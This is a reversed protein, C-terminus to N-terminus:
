LVKRIITEDVRQDIVAKGVATLLTFRTEGQVNKKDSHLRIIIKDSLSSKDKTSITFEIPLGANVLGNKLTELNDNSLLGLLVAIKAEAVMGISVAEGHFLPKDTELSVAELAHGITHGFNLLKRSGAEKEDLYVIEAKIRCSGAIIKELDASSFEQPKKATVLEFYAKDVIAGHKIIEAFGENFERKWLTSLFDIDCFVAKPQNFTGILNKIGSFNIGTKGGVASDVQALVTTPLQVFDVGRMFTSAAFSATDGLVGGGLIIILSKRDCDKELLQKWITQVSDINKGSEDIDLVIKEFGPQLVKKLKAFCHKDIIPTTIVFVKSYKDFHLIGPLQSVVGSGVYVKYANLVSITTM